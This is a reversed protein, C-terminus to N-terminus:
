KLYDGILEITSKYEIESDYISTIAAPIVISRIKLEKMQNQELRNVMSSVAFHFSMVEFIDDNIVYFPHFSLNFASQNEKIIPSCIAEGYVRQETEQISDM